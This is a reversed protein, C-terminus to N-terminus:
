EKIGDKEKDEREELSAPFQPISLYLFLRSASSSSHLLSASPSSPIYHSSFIPSYTFFTPYLSQPCPLISLHSGYSSSPSYSAFCFLFLTILFGLVQANNKTEWRTIFQILSMFSNSVAQPKM